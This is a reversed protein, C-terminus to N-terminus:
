EVEENGQDVDDRSILEGSEINRRLVKGVIRWEDGPPLGTGPRVWMLDSLQIRVGTRLPRAAAISRRADILNKREVELVVKEPNGLLVSAERIRDVMEKLEQPDASLQHDRFESHHKSVTFHKEIIRAGLSVALVAASVGQTHDSYGVITDLGKLTEIVRLNAQEAPTPYSTVCHLIALQRTDYSISRWIGMIRQKVALLQDMTTMGASLMIPKGMRAVHDILPFFTNDGSAIKFAPVLPNLMTASELDFPTSLFAVACRDAVSKLRAFEEASLQFGKLRALRERESSTVLKEPVVTQFKVADAGAERAREILEVALEMNGEHNNGIEAVIM